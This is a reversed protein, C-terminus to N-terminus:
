PQKRCEKDDEKAVKSANSSILQHIDLKNIYFEVDSINSFPKNRALMSVASWTIAM